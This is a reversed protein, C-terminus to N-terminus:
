GIKPTDAITANTLLQGVEFIDKEPLFWPGDRFQVEWYPTGPVQGRPAKPLKRNVRGTCTRGSWYPPHFRVFVGPCLQTQEAVRAPSLASPPETRVAASTSADWPCPVFQHPDAALRASIHRALVASLSGNVSSVSNRGFHRRGRAHRVWIARQVAKAFRNNMEHQKRWASQTVKVRCDCCYAEQCLVCAGVDARLMAKSCLTCYAAWRGGASPLWVFADHNTGAQLNHGGQCIGEVATDHYATAEARGVVPDVAPTAGASVKAAGGSPCQEKGPMGM